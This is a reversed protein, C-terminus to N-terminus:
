EGGGDGSSAAAKERAKQNMFVLLYEKLFKPNEGAQIAMVGEIIIQKCLMEEEDRAQLNTVIPGFVVHALFSGYFTTLLAVSMDPGLSDMDGGGLGKLMNVLGVLTGIMGFAPAAGSGKEYMAIVTAHRDMTQSMDNELITRVRDPDNADVLLTIASKFFPDKQENVKEELALLGNKRAINGLEVLQDIYTIPNYTKSKLLIMFHKFSAMAHKPYSAIVVSLTGGIVILVSAADFFNALNEVAFTIGFPSLNISTIIGLVTLVAAVLIGVLYLINM